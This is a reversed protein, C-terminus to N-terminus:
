RQGVDVVFHGFAVALHGKGPSLMGVVRRHLRQRRLGLRLNLAAAPDDNASRAGLGDHPDHNLVLFQALGLLQGGRKGGEEREVGRGEFEAAAVFEEIHAPATDSPRRRAAKPVAGTDIHDIRPNRLDSLDVNTASPLTIAGSSGGTWELMASIVADGTFTPFVVTGEPGVHGLLIDVMADSGGEVYGFASLATHVYVNDGRRLGVENLARRLEEATTKRGDKNM